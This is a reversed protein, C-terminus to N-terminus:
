RVTRSKPASTLEGTDVRRALDSLHMIFPVANKRRAAVYGDFVSLVTFGGHADDFRDGRSVDAGAPQARATM